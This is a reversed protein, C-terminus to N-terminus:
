FILIEMLHTVHHSYYVHTFESIVLNIEANNYITEEISKGMVNRVFFAKTKDLSKRKNIM